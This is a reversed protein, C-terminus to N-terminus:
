AESGAEADDEGGVACAGGATLLRRHLESILMARAGDQREVLGIRRLLPPAGFPVSVLPAACDAIAVRPVVSVGLGNAVCSVIASVTDIEAVESRHNEPAPTSTQTDCIAM